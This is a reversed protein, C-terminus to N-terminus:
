NKLVIVFIKFFIIFMLVDGCKFIMVVMSIKVDKDLFRVGKWCNVMM